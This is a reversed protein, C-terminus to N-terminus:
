LGAEDSEKAGTTIDKGKFGGQICVDGVLLCAHDRCCASAKCCQYSITLVKLKFIIEHGESSLVGGTDGTPVHGEWARPHGWPAAPSRAPAHAGAPSQKLFMWTKNMSIGPAMLKSCVKGLLADAECGRKEGLAHPATLAKRFEEKRSARKRKPSM